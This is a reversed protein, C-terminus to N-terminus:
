ETAKPAEQIQYSEVRIGMDKFWFALAYLVFSVATLTETSIWKTVPMGTVFTQLTAAGTGIAGLAVMTKTKAGPFWSYVWTEFKHWYDKIQM